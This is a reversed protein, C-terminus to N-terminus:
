NRREKRSRENQLDEIFDFAILGIHWRSQKLIYKLMFLGWSDNGM